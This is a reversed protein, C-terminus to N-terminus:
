KIIRLAADDVIVGDTNWRRFWRREVWICHSKDMTPKDIVVMRPGGCKLRVVAGRPVFDTLKGM